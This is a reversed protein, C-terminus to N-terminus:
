FRCNLFLFQYMPILIHIPYLILSSPHPIPTLLFLCLIPSQPPVLLISSYPHVPLIFTQLFIYLSPYASCTPHVPPIFLYSSPYSSYSPTPVSCSPHLTLPTLLFLHLDPLSKIRGWFLFLNIVVLVRLVLYTLVVVVFVVM